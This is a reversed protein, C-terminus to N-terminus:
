PRAGVCYLHHRTRFFLCGGSVAPSTMLEELLDNTAIKEFRRGTRVVHLHGDNRPIYLRGGAAVPSGYSMGGRGDDLRETYHPKGTVVDLASLIGREDALYLIDDVVLPTPIYSGQRASWWSLGPPVSKSGPVPTLDGRASLRVSHVGRGGHAATIIVSDGHIVPRPVPIDGRGRLWWVMEGDRLDYAATNGHGNCIVLDRGDFRAVTPTSWTTSGQRNIALVEKGSDLDLVAVFAREPTDCQIIVRDEHIIPSSSYGWDLQPNDSPAGSLLGLDVKWRRSGAFDFCYVGHSGFSAVVNTGDTAPTPNAYSSQSHRGQKPVGKFCTSEWVRRGSHKDLCILKFEWVDEERLIRYGWSPDQKFEPDGRSGVATTLFLRDGWVIPSSLSLGEIAASWRINKGAAVDWEAPPDGAGMGAGNVGRFSPWNDAVAGPSLLTLALLIPPVRM